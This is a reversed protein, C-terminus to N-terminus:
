WGQLDLSGDQTHKENFTQKHTILILLFQFQWCFDQSVWFYYQLNQLDNNLYNKEKKCCDVWFIWKEIDM